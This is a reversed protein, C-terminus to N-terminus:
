VQRVIAICMLFNSVSKEFLISSLEELKKGKKTKDLNGNRLQEYLTAFETYSAGDLMLRRSNYQGFLKVMDSLTYGAQNLLREAERVKKEEFEVRCCGIYLSLM